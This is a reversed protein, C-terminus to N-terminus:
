VSIRFNHRVRCLQLLKENQTKIALEQFNEREKNDDELIDDCSELLKFCRSTDEIKERVDELREAFLKMQSKLNKASDKLSKGKVDPINNSEEVVDVAKDIQRQKPSFM